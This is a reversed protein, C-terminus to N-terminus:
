SGHISDELSLEPGSGAGAVGEGQPTLTEDGCVDNAFALGALRDGDVTVIKFGREPMVHAHKLELDIAFLLALLDKEVLDLPIGHAVDDVIDFELSSRLPDLDLHLHFQFEEPVGLAMAFEDLVQGVEFHLTAGAENRLRNRDLGAVHLQVVDDGHAVQAKRLIDIGQNGGVFNDTLKAGELLLLLLGFLGDLAFFRELRFQHALLIRVLGLFGPVLGTGGKSRHNRTGRGPFVGRHPTNSQHHAESIRTRIVLSAAVIDTEFNKIKQSALEPSARRAEAGTPSAKSFDKADRVSLPDEEPREGEHISAAGRNRGCGVLTFDLWGGNEDNRVIKV